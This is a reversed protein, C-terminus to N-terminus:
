RSFLTTAACIAELPGHKDPDQLLDEMDAVTVKGPVQQM